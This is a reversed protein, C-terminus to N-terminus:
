GLNSPRFLLGGEWLEALGQRIRYAWVKKPRRFARVLSTHLVVVQQGLAQILGILGNALGALIVRRRISVWSALRVKEWDLEQKLM